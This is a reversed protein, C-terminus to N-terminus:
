KVNVFHPQCVCARKSAKKDVGDHLFNKRQRLKIKRRNDKRKTRQRACILHKRLRKAPSLM